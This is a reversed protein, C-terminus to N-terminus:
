RSIENGNTEKNPSDYLYGDRQSTDISIFGQCQKSVGKNLLKESRSPRGSMEQFM